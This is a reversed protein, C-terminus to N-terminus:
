LTIYAMFASTLTLAAVGAMIQAPLRLEANKRSRVWTGAARGGFLMATFFPLIIAWEVAQHTSTHSAAFMMCVTGILTNLVISRSSTLLWLYGGLLLVGLSVALLILVTPTM